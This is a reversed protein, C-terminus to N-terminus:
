KTEIYKELKNYFNISGLIFSTLLVIFGIIYVPLQAKFNFYEKYNLLITIEFSLYFLITIFFISYSLIFTILGYTTKGFEKIEKSLEKNNLKYIM